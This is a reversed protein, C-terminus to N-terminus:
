PLEGRPSANARTSRAPGGIRKARRQGTTVLQQRKEIVLAGFARSARQSAAGAYILTTKAFSHGLLARITEFDEPHADLYLKAALHRFQHPTMHVGVRDGLTESLQQSLTEQAKRRGSHTIFLDGCPDANFAPLIRRKYWRLRSAVDAPVEFILDRKRSKTESSPIVLQM